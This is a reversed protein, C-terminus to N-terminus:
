KNGETEHYIENDESLVDRQCESGCCKISTCRSKLMCKSIAGILTAIAGVSIGVMTLIFNSTIPDM